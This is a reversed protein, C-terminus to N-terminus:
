SKSKNKNPTPYPKPKGKKGSLQDILKNNYKLLLDNQEKILRIHEGQANLNELQTMVLRELDKKTYNM